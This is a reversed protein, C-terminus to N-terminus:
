RRWPLLAGAVSGRRRTCCSRCTAVVIMIAWASAVLFPRVIWFSAAILAGLSLLQFTTRPLDQSVNAQM